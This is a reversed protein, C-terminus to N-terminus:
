ESSPKKVDGESTEEPTTESHVEDGVAKETVSSVKEKEGDEPKEEPEPKILKGICDYKMMFQTEWERVSDMEMPSLDSLDDYGDKLVEESLAFTALGRSADRGAFIGYPGDPGYFKKGRTVDFVKGNVAMLIRGDPQKGDYPRIEEVTMDRKPLPPLSEDPVYPADDPRRGKLVRYLLYGCVGLLALNVPSDVLDSLFKSLFGGSSLDETPAGKTEM